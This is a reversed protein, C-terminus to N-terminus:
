KGTATGDTKATDGGQGSKGDGLANGSGSRPSKGSVETERRERRAQQQEDPSAQQTTSPEGAASTPKDTSSSTM